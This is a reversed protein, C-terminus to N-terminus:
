LIKAECKKNVQARHVKGISDAMAWLEMSLMSCKIDIFPVDQAMELSDQPM